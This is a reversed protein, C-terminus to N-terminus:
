QVIRVVSKNVRGPTLCTPLDVSEENIKLKVVAKVCINSLNEGFTYATAVNATTYGDPCSTCVRQGFVSYTGRPCPKKDVGGSCYYGSQCDECEDNTNRYQGSPCSSPQCVGDNVSGNNCAVCQTHSINSYPTPAVCKRCVGYEVIFAGTNCAVCVTHSQDAYPTNGLCTTCQSMGTTPAVSNGSCAYETDATCYHGVNCLVCNGASCYWGSNCHCSHGQEAYASNLVCVCLMFVSLFLKKLFM